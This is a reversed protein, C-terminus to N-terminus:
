FLMVIPKNRRKRQKRKKKKEEKSENSAEKRKKTKKKKEEKSETPPKSPKKTKKKEKKKEEKSETPPKKEKAKAKTKTKKEKPKEIVIEEVESETDEAHPDALMLLQMAGSEKDDRDRILRDAKNKDDKELVAVLPQLLENPVKLEFTSVPDSVIAFRFRTTRFFRYDSVGDTHLSIMGTSLDIYLNWAEMATAEDTEVGQMGNFSAQPASKLTPIWSMSDHEVQYVLVGTDGRDPDTRSELQDIRELAGPADVWKKDKADFLQLSLKKMQVLQRSKITVNMLNDMPVSLVQNGIYQEWSGKKETETCRQSVHVPETFGAFLCVNTPYLNFMLETVTSSKGRGNDCNIRCNAVSLDLLVETWPIKTGLIDCIDSPSATRFGYTNKKEMSGGGGNASGAEHIIKTFDPFPSGSLYFRYGSFDTNRLDVQSESKKDDTLHFTLVDAQFETLTVDTSNKLLIFDVKLGKGEAFPHKPSAM